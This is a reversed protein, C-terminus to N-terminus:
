AASWVGRSLFGHWGGPEPDAISPRVTITGDEHETIEWPHVIPDQRVPIVLDAVREQYIREMGILGVRGMPDCIYWGVREGFDVLMYDGPERKAWADWGPGHKGFVADPLRRGDLDALLM